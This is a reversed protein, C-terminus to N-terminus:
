HEEQEKITEIEPPAPPSFHSVVFAAAFFVVLVAIALGFVGGMHSAIWDQINVSTQSISEAQRPFLLVFLLIALCASSLWVALEVKRSLRRLLQQNESDAPKM